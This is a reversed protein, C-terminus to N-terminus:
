KKSGNPESPSGVHATSDRGLFGVDICMCRKRWASGLGKPVPAAAARPCCTVLLAVMTSGHDPGYEHM